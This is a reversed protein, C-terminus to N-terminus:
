FGLQSALVRLLDRRTGIPPPHAAGRRQAHSRERENALFNQLCVLLFSRFKGAGQRVNTLSNRQLFRHFFEQTLDEAEPPSSGQRRIFAYLPYWYTSCLNALAAAGATEGGDRAALVITWHTTHFRMATGVEARTSSEPSM